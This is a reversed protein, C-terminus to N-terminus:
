NYSNKISINIKKILESIIQHSYEYGKTWESYRPGAVNLTLVKNNQIFKILKIIMEPFESLEPRLVLVPKNIQRAAKETSLTGGTLIKKSIILTADSDRVNKYTRSYYNSKETENLNYKTDIKGDEALRGKPCWGGHSFKNAICADLAGRDVGTQGGSIIKQCVIQQNNIM